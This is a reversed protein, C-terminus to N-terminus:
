RCARVSRPSASSLSTASRTALGGAFASVTARHAAVLEGDHERVNGAKLRQSRRRPMSSHGPWATEWRRRLLEENRRADADAHERSSAAVPVLSILCASVAIYLALSEPRLLKTIEGGIQVLFDCSRMSISLPAACAGDLALLQAQEILRLDIERRM